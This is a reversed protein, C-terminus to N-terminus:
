KPRRTPSHTWERSSRPTLSVNLILHSFPPSIFEGTALHGCRLPKHRGPRRFSIVMLFSIMIEDLFLTVHKEPPCIIEDINITTNQPIM